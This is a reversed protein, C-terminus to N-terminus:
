KAVKKYVGGISTTTPTLCFLSLVDAPNEQGGGEAGVLIENSSLMRITLFTPEAAGPNVPTQIYGNRYDGIGRFACAPVGSLPSSTFTVEVKEGAIWKVTFKKWFGKDPYNADAFAGSLEELSADKYLNEEKAPAPAAAANEETESKNAKKDSKCSFAFLGLLCCCALAYKKM